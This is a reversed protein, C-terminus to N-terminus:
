DAVQVTPVTPPLWGYRWGVSTVGEVTDTIETIVGDLTAIFQRNDNTVVYVATRDPNWRVFKPTSAGIPISTIPTGDEAYIWMPGSGETGPRGLALLQNAFPKDDDPRQTGNQLWLGEETGNLVIDLNRGTRDLKGLIVPGDEPSRGSVIIRGDNGWDGYDYYFVPQRIHRITEDNTRPIVMIGGRNEEILHLGVLIFDSGLSWVVSRPEYTQPDDPRTVIECGPPCAILLQMPWFGYPQFFWVGDDSSRAPNGTTNIVFAVFQGDPSWAADTVIDNNQERTPPIFDLFPSVNLRAPQGKDMTFLLGQYDAIIYRQSNVPNQVVLAPNDIGGTQTFPQAGPEQLFYAEADGIVPPLTVIFNNITTPNAEPTQTAQVGERADIRTNIIRSLSGLTAEVIALEATEPVTVMVGVVYPGYPYEYLYRIGECTGVLDGSSFLNGDTLTTRTIRDWGFLRQYLAFITDDVIFGQASVEDTMLRLWSGLGYISLGECDAASFESLATALVGNNTYSAELASVDDNDPFEEGWLAAQEAVTRVGNDPNPTNFVGNGPLEEVRLGLRDLTDLRQEPDPTPTTQFVNIPLTPVPTQQANLQRSLILILLLFLSKTRM